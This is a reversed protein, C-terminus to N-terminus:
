LSRPRWTQSVRRTSLWGGGSTFILVRLNNPIDTIFSFGFLIVITIMTFIKEFAIDHHLNAM